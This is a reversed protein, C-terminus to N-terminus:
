YFTRRVKCKIDPEVNDKARVDVAVAV